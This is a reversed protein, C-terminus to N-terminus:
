CSFIQKIFLCSLVSSVTVILLASHTMANNCNDKNSCCYLTALSGTSEATNCVTNSGERIVTGSPFFGMNAWYMTKHCSTFGPQSVSSTISLDGKYPDYCDINTASSCVICNLEYTTSIMTMIILCSFITIDM